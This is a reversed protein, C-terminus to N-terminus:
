SKDSLSEYNDESRGPSHQFLMKFCALINERRDTIILWEHANKCKIQHWIDEEIVM